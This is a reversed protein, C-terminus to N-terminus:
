YKFIFCLSKGSPGTTLVRISRICLVFTPGMTLSSFDWISPLAAFYVSLICFQQGLSAVIM